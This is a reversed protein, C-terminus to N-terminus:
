ALISLQQAKMFFFISALLKINRLLYNPLNQFQMGNMGYGHFAFLYQDGDGYEHYVITGIGEVEYSNM